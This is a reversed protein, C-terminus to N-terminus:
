GTQQLVPFPEVRPAVMDALSVSELAGRITRNIHNWHGRLVCNHEVSCQGSQGDICDTLAIPGDMAAVIDAVTIAAAPRALQYGGKMGRLARIIGSKALKKLIKAATPLALGSQRAIAAATLVPCDAIALPALIVVAYDTLKPLRLM